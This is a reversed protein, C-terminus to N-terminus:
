AIFLQLVILTLFYKGSPGLRDSYNAIRIVLKWILPNISYAGEINVATGGELRMQGITNLGQRNVSVDDVFVLVLALVTLV